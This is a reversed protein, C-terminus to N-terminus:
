PQLRHFPPSTLLTHCASVRQLADCQDRLAAMYNLPSHYCSPFVFTFDSLRPQSQTVGQVTARLTGRDMPNELCPCQRLNGNGGGPSRGLGPILGPDGANCASERSDSGRPFGTPCLIRNWHIFKTIEACHETTDFTMLTLARHNARLFTFCQESTLLGKHSVSVQEQTWLSFYTSTVRSSVCAIQILM